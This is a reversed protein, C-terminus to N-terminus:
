ITLMAFEFNDQDICPKGCISGETTDQNSMLCYSLDEALHLHDSDPNYLFQNIKCSAMHIGLGSYIDQGEGVILCRNVDVDSRIRNHSDGHWLQRRPKSRFRCQQSGVEAFEGVGRNATMCYDVDGITNILFFAPTVCTESICEYDDDCDANSCCETAFHSTNCSTSDTPPPNTPAEAICANNSCIQGSSCDDNDCCQVGSIDTSCLCDYDECIETASCDTDECCDVDGVGIRCNHEQYDFIFCPDDGCTTTRLADTDQIRPGNQKVCFSPSHKVRIPATGRNHLFTTYIVDEDCACFKVRSHGENISTGDDIVFCQTNDLKSHIKGDADMLFLQTDPANTFDCLDFGANSGDTVGNKATICWDQGDAFGAHSVLFAYPWNPVANRVGRFTNKFGHVRGVILLAYIISVLTSILKM